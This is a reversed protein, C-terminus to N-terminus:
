SDGLEMWQKGTWILQETSGILPCSAGTQLFLLTDNIIGSIPAQEHSLDWISRQNYNAMGETEGGDGPVASKKSLLFKTNWLGLTTLWLVPWGLQKKPAEKTKIIQRMQSAGVEEGKDNESKWENEHGDWWRDEGEGYRVQVGGIGRSREVGICNM